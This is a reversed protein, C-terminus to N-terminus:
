QSDTGESPQNDEIVDPKFMGRAVEQRIGDLRNVIRDAMALEFSSQVAMSDGAEIADILDRTSM